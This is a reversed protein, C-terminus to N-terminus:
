IPQSESVVWGNLPLVSPAVLEPPDSEPDAPAVLVPPAAPPELVPPPEPLELVPPFAPPSAAGPAQPVTKPCAPSQSVHRSVFQQASPSAQEFTAFQALMALHVRSQSAFPPVVACLSWHREVQLVWNRVSWDRATYLGSTWHM